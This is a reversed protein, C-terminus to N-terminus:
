TRSALAGLAFALMLLAILIAILPAIPRRVLAEALTRMSPHPGRPRPCPRPPRSQPHPSPRPARIVIFRGIVDGLRPQIQSGLVNGAADVRPTDSRTTEDTFMDGRPLEM